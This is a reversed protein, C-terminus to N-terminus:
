LDCIAFRLDEQGQEDLLQGEKGRPTPSRRSRRPAAARLPPSPPQSGAGPRALRSRASETHGSNPSATRASPDPPKRDAGRANAAPSPAAPPHASGPCKPAPKPAAAAADRNASPTATTEPSAPGPSQAPALPRGPSPPDSYKDETARPAPGRPRPCCVFQGSAPPILHPRYRHRTTRRDDEAQRQRPLLYTIPLSLSARKRCASATM